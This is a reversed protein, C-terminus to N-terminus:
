VPHLGRKRYRPYRFICRYSSQKKRKDVIPGFPRLTPVRRGTPSTYRLEFKVIHLTRRDNFPDLYRNPADKVKSQFEEVFSALDSTVETDAETFSVEKIEVKAYPSPVEKTYTYEGVELLSGFFSPGETADKSFMSEQEEISLSLRMPVRYGEGMMRKYTEKEGGESLLAVYITVPKDNSWDLASSKPAKDDFWEFSSGKSVASFSSVDGKLYPAIGETKKASASKVFEEILLDYENIVVQRNALGDYLVLPLGDFEVEGDGNLYCQKGYTNNDDVGYNFKSLQQEIGALSLTNGDATFYYQMSRAEGSQKWKDFDQMEYNSYLPKLGPIEYEGFWYTPEFEVCTLHEEVAHQDFYSKLKDNSGCLTLDDAKRPAMLVEFSPGKFDWLSRECCYQLTTKFIKKKSKSANSSLVIQVKVRTFPTIRNTKIQPFGSKM